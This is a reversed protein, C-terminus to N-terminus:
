KNRKRRKSSCLMLVYVATPIDNAEACMTSYFIYYRGTLESTKQARERKWVGGSTIFDAVLFLPETYTMTVSWIVVACVYFSSSRVGM